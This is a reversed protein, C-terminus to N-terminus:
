ASSVEFNADPCHHMRHYRQDWSIDGGVDGVQVAGCELCEIRYIEDAVGDTHEVGPYDTGDSSHDSGSKSKPDTM